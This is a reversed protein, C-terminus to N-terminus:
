FPPQKAPNNKTPGGAMLHLVGKKTSKNVDNNIGLKMGQMAHKLQNNYGTVSGTNIVMRSPMLWTGPAAVFDLRVNAKNIALQYRQVSKSIDPTRIAGELLVLFDRQAEKARGGNGLISSHVNVQAGRICYVFAEISQNLRSQGSQTLVQATDLVFYEFQRDAGQDNRIYDLMNGKDDTSGEDAFRKSSPNSLTALPYVWKKQAYDGNPYNIFVYGLGHNQGFTFRFDSSPDVEFEACIRRYAVEDYPIDKENFTPDGPLASISQIGGMEYLIHRTTFYVHFLYFSRLQPSLNLSSNNGESQLFERSIGSDTTACWLAFNLQQLWFSMHPGGLWKRAYKATTFKIQTDTFIQRFQTTFYDTPTVYIKQEKNLAEGINSQINKSFDVAPIPKPPRNNISLQYPFGGDHHLGLANKMAQPWDNRDSGFMSKLSGQGEKFFVEGSAKHNEDFDVEVTFTSMDANPFHQKFYSLSKAKTAAALKTEEPSKMWKFKSDISDHETTRPMVKRRNFAGTSFFPPLSSYDRGGVELGLNSNPNFGGSFM